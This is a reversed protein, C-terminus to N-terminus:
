CAPCPERMNNGSNKANNNQCTLFFPCHTYDRRCLDELVAISPVYNEKRAGCTAVQWLFKDSSYISLYHCIM